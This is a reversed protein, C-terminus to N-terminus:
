FMSRVLFVFGGLGIMVIVTVLGVCGFIPLRPLEEYRFYRPGFVVALIALGVQGLRFIFEAVMVGVLLTLVLAIGIAM